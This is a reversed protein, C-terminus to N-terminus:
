LSKRYLVVRSTETFGLADHARQSVLNHLEVDSALERYGRERAWAEAARVLARGVGARRVDPDVYWGELYAVAGTECGDAVSREGVEALGCLGVRGPRVAVLAVADSRARWLRVEARHEGDGGEPWLARRMRVWEDDDDGGALAVRIEIRAHATLPRTGPLVDRGRADRLHRCPPASDVPGGPPRITLCSAVPEDGAVLRQSADEDV